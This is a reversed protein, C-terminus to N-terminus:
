ILRNIIIILMEIKAMHVLKQNKAYMENGLAYDKVGKKKMHLNILKDAYTPDVNCLELILSWKLTEFFERRLENRFFENDRM